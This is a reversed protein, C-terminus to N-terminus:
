APENGPKWKIGCGVSPKQDTGVPSGSLVADLAARLDSGNAPRGSNPRTDDLQGRYVLKGAGDFLFTDPTCAAGFARAVSQDADHCYPYNLGLTEAQERLSEPADAPYRAADNAGIAVIGVGKPVYDVGLRVLEAEVHKVYPCHRCIFTIVVAKSGALDGASVHKGSRVEPLTFAPLSSGLTLGAAGSAM